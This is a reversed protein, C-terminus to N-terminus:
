RGTTWTLIFFHLLWPASSILFNTYAGYGALFEQLVGFLDRLFLVLPASSALFKGYAGGVCKKGAPVCKKGRRYMKEGLSM